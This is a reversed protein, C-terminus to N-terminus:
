DIETVIFVENIAGDLNILDEFSLVVTVTNNGETMITVTFTM